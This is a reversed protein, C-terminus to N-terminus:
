DDAEVEKEEKNESDEQTEEDFFESVISDEDFDDDSPKIHTEKDRIDEEGDSEVQETEKTEPVTIRDQDQAITDSEDSADQEGEQTEGESATTSIEEDSAIQSEIHEIEESELDTYDQAYNERITERLRDVVKDSVEEGGAREILWQVQSLATTYMAERPHHGNSILELCENAREPTLMEWIPVEWDELLEEMEEEHSHADNRIRAILERAMPSLDVIDDGRGPLDELRDTQEDFDAVALMRDSMEITLPFWQDEEPFRVLAQSYPRDTGTAANKVFDKHPRKLGFRDGWNDVDASQHIVQFSSNNVIGEAQEFEFFDDMEQTIFRISTDYHRSHRVRQALYELTDAERFLFRAEDVIYIAPGPYQKCKEYALSFMLQGMVGTGSGGSSEEQSLDLYIVDNDGFVDEESSQSLNHYQGGPAFERLINGIAAAQQEIDAAEQPGKAWKEPNESAHEALKLVETLTPSEKDHTEVDHTIGKKKYASLILSRLLQSEDGFQLGPQQAVYNQIFAMVDDVKASLPDKDEDFAESEIHEQPPKRIEMPNLNQQGGISVKTADLAEALGHFGQLPDLMIILTDERVAKTALAMRKTNLSKGSGSEGVVTMNYNRPSKFPDKVIPHGQVAHFGWEHGSPDFKRSQTFSAFVAGFSSGLMKYTPDIDPDDNHLKDLGVPSASVLAKKQKRELTKLRINASTRFEDRLEDVQELLAEEDEDRVCLYLSVSCPREDNQKIQDRYDKVKDKRLSKDGATLDDGETAEIGVSAKLNNYLNKASRMTKEKDNAHFHMTLDFHLTPDDHIEKLGALPTVDPFKHAFLVRRYKEGVNYHTDGKEMEPPAIQRQHLEEVRSLYDEEDFDDDDLHPPLQSDSTASIANGETISQDPDRVTEAVEDSVIDDFDPTIQLTESEQEVYEDGDAEGDDEPFDTDEEGDESYRNYGERLILLLFTTGFIYFAAGETPVECVKNTCRGVGPLWEFLTNWRGQSISPRVQLLPM